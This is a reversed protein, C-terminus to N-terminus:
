LLCSSRGRSSCTAQAKPTKSCYNFRYTTLLSILSLPQSCRLRAPKVFSVRKSNPISTLICPFVPNTNLAAFMQALSVPLVQGGQVELFVFNIAFGAPVQALGVPLIDGDQAQTSMPNRLNWYALQRLNRPKLWPLSALARSGLFSYSHLRQHQM